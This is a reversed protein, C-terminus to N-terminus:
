ATKPEIILMIDFKRSSAETSATLRKGLNVQCVISTILAM